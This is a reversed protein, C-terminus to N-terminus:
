LAELVKVMRETLADSLKLPEPDGFLWVGALPQVVAIATGSEVPYVAIPTAMASAVTADLAAAKAAAVPVAVHLLVYDAPLHPSIEPGRAERVFTFGEVALRRKLKALAKAPTTDLVLVWRFGGMAAHQEADAAAPYTARLHDVIDASTTLVKEGDVLVPVGEQGSVEVLEHRGSRDFPVNVATYTLGLETLTQRVRHCYPCWEVQYLTIM